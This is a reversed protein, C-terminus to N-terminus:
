YLFYLDVQTKKHLLSICILLVQTLQPKIQMLYSIPNLYNEKNRTTLNSPDNKQLPAWDMMEMTCVVQELDGFGKKKDSVM